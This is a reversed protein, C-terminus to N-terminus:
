GGFRLRKIENIVDSDNVEPNDKAWTLALRVRERSEKIGKRCSGSTYLALLGDTDKPNERQKRCISFSTRAMWLMARFCNARDKVLDQGHFGFEHPAAWTYMGDEDVGLRRKTGKHTPKGLNIQGLCWSRGSDGRSKPGVGLDVDRRFGSEVRAIALLAAATKARGQPGKFLPKESPDYAVSVLDKAIETYRKQAQENTEYAGEIFAPAGPPAVSIILSIIWAIVNDL